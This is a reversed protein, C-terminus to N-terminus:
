SGLVVKFHSTNRMPKCSGPCVLGTCCKGCPLVVNVRSPQFLTEWQAKNESCSLDSQFASQTCLTGLKVVPLRLCRRKVCSKIADLPWMLHASRCWRPERALAGRIISTCHAWGLVCKDSHIGTSLSVSKHKLVARVLYTWLATIRLHKVVM